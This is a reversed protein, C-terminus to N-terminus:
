LRNEILSYQYCKFTMFKNEHNKIIILKNSAISLLMINDYQIIACWKLCWVAYLCLRQSRNRVRKKFYAYVEKM